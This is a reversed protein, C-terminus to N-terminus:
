PDGKDFEPLVTLGATAAVVFVVATAVEGGVLEEASACDVVADCDGVL